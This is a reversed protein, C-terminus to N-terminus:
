RREDAAASSPSRLILRLWDRLETMTKFQNTWGEITLTGPTPITIIEPM